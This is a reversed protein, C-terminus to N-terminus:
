VSPLRTVTTVRCMTYYPLNLAIKRCLPLIHEPVTFLPMISPQWASCLTGNYEEYQYKIPKMNEQFWIPSFFILIKMQFCEVVVILVYECLCLM